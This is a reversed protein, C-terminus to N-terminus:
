SGSTRCSRRLGAEEEEDFEAFDEVMQRDREDSIRDLGSTAPPPPPAAQAARLAALVDTRTNAGPSSPTAAGAEGAMGGLVALALVTSVARGLQDPRRGRTRGARHRFGERM